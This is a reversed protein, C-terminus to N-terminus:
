RTQRGRKGRGGDTMRGGSNRSHTQRPKLYQEEVDAISRKETKMADGRSTPRPEERPEIRNTRTVDAAEPGLKRAPPEYWHEKPVVTPKGRDMVYNPSMIQVGYENFADQINQHLDSYIRPMLEPRETYVNLEYTVYFDNLTSQLVFPEPTKLVEATKAGAMLLLAHVQRWPTDYGITVSTPLILKGNKAEVSFNIVHTGLVTANPITVDVNKITRIRTVLLGHSTVLGQTDQIKVFDGVRFARMYTLIVGAVINAVASTSGLSFLVGLFISIGKFAPSDSGPIYPFAVVLVFAIVLIRVLKFTPIGWDSFFGPLVIRGKEIEAFFFRLVKIVYHTVIYLVALFFLNPLYDWFSLAMTRLPGLTLDLLHDALPRTWVFRSLVFELYTYLVVAILVARALKAFVRLGRKLWDIKVVEVHHIAIGHIRAGLVSETWQGLRGLLRMLIVLFVTAVASLIVGWLLRSKSRDDRYRDVASRISTVYKRALETRSTGRLHADIDFVSLLLRGQVVIDTSVESEDVLLSDLPVSAGALLEMVKRSVLEARKEVPIGRTGAQLFFLTDQGFMVPAVVTTDITIVQRPQASVSQIQDEGSARVPLLVVLLLCIRFIM